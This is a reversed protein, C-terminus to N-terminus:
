EEMGTVIAAVELGEVQKIQPTKQPPNTLYQIVGSYFDILMEEIIEVFKKPAEFKAGLHKIYSIAFSTIEKSKLDGAMQELDNLRTLQYENRFKLKPEIHIREEIKQFTDPNKNKCMEMQKILWSIQGRITKDPALMNVTMVITRRDFHSIIEINSVIREVRLKTSLYKKSKLQNFINDFRSKSDQKSAIKVLVGLQRSLILAMDKEEQQWSDIVDTINPDDKKPVPASTVTFQKVVEKWGPKMSTFGCIGSEKAEFFTVIEKMLSVQDDDKINHDNKFLLVHAITLLASWSYHFLDIGKPIRSKVPTQSPDQVFQNSITLIKTIGLHKALEIYKEIQSDDISNTKNKVEILVADKIEGSVISLILGDPRDNSFEPFEVETYFLHSGSKRLKLDSFIDERFEKVLKLSSLFISTLAIEDGAKITSPILRAPRVLIQKESVLENFNTLEMGILRIAKKAM